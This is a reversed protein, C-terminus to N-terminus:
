WAMGEGERRRVWLTRCPLLICSQIFLLHISPNQQGFAMFKFIHCFWIFKRSFRWISIKVDFGNLKHPKYHFISNKGLTSDISRYIDNLKSSKTSDLQSYPDLTNPSRILARHYSDSNQRFEWSNDECWPEMPSSCCYYRALIQKPTMRWATQQTKHRHYTHATIVTMAADLRRYEIYKVFVHFKMLFVCLRHFYHSVTYILNSARFSKNNHSPYHQIYMSCVPYSLAAQNVVNLMYLIGHDWEKIFKRIRTFPNNALDIFFVNGGRFTDCFISDSLDPRRHVDCSV